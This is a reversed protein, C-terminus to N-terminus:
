GDMYLSRHWMYHLKVDCRWCRVTKICTPLNPKSRYLNVLWGVRVQQRWTVDLSVQTIPFWWHASLNFEGAEIANGAATAKRDTRMYLVRAQIVCASARRSATVAISVGSHDRLFTTTVRHYKLVRNDKRYDRWQGIAHNRSCGSRNWFIM